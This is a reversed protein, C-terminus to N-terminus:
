LRLEGMKVALPHLMRVARGGAFAGHWADAPAGWRHRGHGDGEIRAKHRLVNRKTEVPGKQHRDKQNM